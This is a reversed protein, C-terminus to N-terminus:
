KQSELVEGWTRGALVRSTAIVPPEGGDVPPFSGEPCNWIRKGTPTTYEVIYDNPDYEAPLNVMWPLFLHQPCGHELVDEPIEAGDAIACTWIPTFFPVQPEGPLSDCGGATAHCCTLCHCRPFTAGKCVPFAACRKCEHWDPRDNCRDGTGDAVIQKALTALNNAVTENFAVRELYLENTDKNEAVYLANRLGACLMGFQMQAHHQPKAKAVGHRELANWDSAKATKIELLCRKGDEILVGDVTAGAHGKGGDLDFTDQRQTVKFGAAELDAVIRDEAKHGNEFVRLIRGDFNPDFASRFTLAIKRTCTDGVISAGLWRRFPRAAEERRRVAEYIDKATIM